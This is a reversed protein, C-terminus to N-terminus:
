KKREDKRGIKGNKGNKRGNELENGQKKCGTKRKNNCVYGHNKRWQELEFELRSMCLNKLIRTSDARLEDYFWKNIECGVGSVLTVIYPHKFDAHTFILM